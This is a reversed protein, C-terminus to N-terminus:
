SFLINHLHFIVVIFCLPLSNISYIYIHTHSVTGLIRVTPGKFLLTENKNRQELLVYYAHEPSARHYVRFTKGLTM